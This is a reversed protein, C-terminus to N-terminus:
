TWYQYATILKLYDTLIFIALNIQHRTFNHQLKNSTSSRTPHHYFSVYYSNNINFRNTPHQVSKIVFPIDCLDYTYILPLMNLNLLHQRYNSSCNNLIYKYGVTPNKWVNKNIVRQKRDSDADAKLQMFNSFWQLLQVFRSLWAHICHTISPCNFTKM